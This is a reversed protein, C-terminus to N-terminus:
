HTSTEFIESIVKAVRLTHRRIDDDSKGPYRAYSIMIGNLASFLAHATIRSNTQIGASVLTEEMRNMLERMIEDLKQTAESSLEGALMFHSMMQYFTMNDNLFTIYFICLQELTPPAKRSMDDFRQTIEAASNLFVDLFLETLNPYYNYITGISVGAHKAIERVTVSRFDKIAFLDLASDLIIKRRSDREIKKLDQIKKNALFNRRYPYKKFFFKYGQHRKIILDFLFIM